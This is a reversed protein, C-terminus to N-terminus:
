RVVTITGTVRRDDEGTVRAIYVGPALRVDVPGSGAYVRRGSGDYVAAHRCNIRVRGSAVTAWVPAQGVEVQNQPEEIGTPFLTSDSKEVSGETGYESRGGVVVVFGSAVAAGCFARRVSLPTTYEWTYDWDGVDIVEVSSLPGHHGLGGIACLWRGWGIAGAGSRAVHMDRWSQWWRSSEPQYFEFTPLDNYYKGGVACMRGSAVAAAPSARRTVLSEVVVWQGVGSDPSFRAVARRYTGLTTSFGGIAYARGEFTCGALASRPWPLPAVTDWTNSAPDFRDVRSLETTGDYGGIVYIKGDLEACGAYWRPGPPPSFGVVWSDAAADYAEVALRPVASDAESILGGIAYVRSGVSVCAFAYGPTPMPACLQWGQALVLTLLGLM